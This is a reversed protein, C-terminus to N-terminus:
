AGAARLRAHRLGAAARTAAALRLRPELAALYRGNAGFACRVGAADAVAAFGAAVDAITLPPPLPSPTAAPLGRLSLVRPDSAPFVRGTLFTVTSAIEDPALGRLFEALLRRKDLRGRNEELRHCLSVFESLRTM